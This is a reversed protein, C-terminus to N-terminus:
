LFEGNSDMFGWCKIDGTVDELRMTVCKWLSDQLIFYKLRTNSCYLPSQVYSYHMTIITLSFCMETFVNAEYETM